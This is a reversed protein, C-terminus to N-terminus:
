FGILVAFSRAGTGGGGGTSSGAPQLLFGQPSGVYWYSSNGIPAATISKILTTSAGEYWYNLKGNPDQNAM